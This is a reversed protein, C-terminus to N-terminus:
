DELVTITTKLIVEIRRILNLMTAQIVVRVARQAMKGGRVPM